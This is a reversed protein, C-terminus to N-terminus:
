LKLSFKCHPAVRKALMNHLCTEGAGLRSPERYSGQLSEYTLDVSLSQGTFRQTPRPNIACRNSISESEYKKKSSRTCNIIIVIVYYYYIIIVIIYRINKWKTDQNHINHTLIACTHKPDLISKERHSCVNWLLGKQSAGCSWRLGYVQSTSDERWDIDDGLLIRFKM